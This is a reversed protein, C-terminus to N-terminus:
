TLVDWHMWATSSEPFSHERDSGDWKIYVTTRGRVHLVDAITGHSETMANHIRAGKQLSKFEDINM